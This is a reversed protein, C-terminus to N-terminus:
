WREGLQERLWRGHYSRAFLAAARWQLKAAAIAEARWGRRFPRPHREGDTWADGCGCCTWTPGYWACDRGAFRRRRECTPCFAIQRLLFASPRCVAVPPQRM